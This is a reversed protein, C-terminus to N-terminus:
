FYKKCLQFTKKNCTQEIAKRHYPLTTSTFGKQILYPDTNVASKKLKIYKLIETSITKGNNKNWQYEYLQM